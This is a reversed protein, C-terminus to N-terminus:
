MDEASGLSASNNQLQVRYNPGEDIFRNSYNGGSQDAVNGEILIDTCTEGVSFGGNSKVINGRYVLVFNNPVPLPHGGSEAGLAIFRSGGYFEDYSLTSNYNVICNGELVVNSIYQNRFNPQIGNGM